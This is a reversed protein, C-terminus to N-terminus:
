EKTEANLFENKIKDIDYRVSANIEEDDSLSLFKEFYYLAEEFNETVYYIIGSNRYAGAFTPDLEIAKQYSNLAHEFEGIQTYAFGLNFHAKVDVPNRNIAKTFSSIANRFDKKLAFANGINMYTTYYDRYFLSRNYQEIAEDYKKENFAIDGLFLYADYESFEPKDIIIYYVVFFGLLITLPIKILTFKREKIVATLQEIGYAAFIIILPTFGLRYRGNVFFIITALIYAAIVFYFIGNRNNDKWHFFFGFLAFSSIFLWNFFPLKLLDSYNNKFHDYNMVSSQSNENEGLFLILKKLILILEDGPNNLIYSFSKDYWYSSVESPSLDVGKQLEAYKEGTMDSAYDFEVPTVFVGQSKENNGIYFNIGGNSTLLVFDNGIIYNHIASFSVILAVGVTINTLSKKFVPKFKRDNKSKSIMWIIIGFYILFVNGRLLLLLGLTIGILLWKDKLYIEEKKSLLYILITFFFIQLTESLVLGSYFIFQSYFVAIIAAAIATFKSFSNKATLYIFFISITSVFSQFLLIPLNSDGFVAYFVALTYPYLPAMFFVSDGIFGSDVLEKAWNSYIASDSFLNQLFPTNFVEFVYYVRIIFTSLLLIFLFKKESKELDSIM